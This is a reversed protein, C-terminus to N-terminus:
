SLNVSIATNVERGITIIVGIWGLITVYKANHALTAMWVDLNRILLMRRADRLIELAISTNFLNTLLGGIILVYSQNSNSIAISLWNALLVYLHM